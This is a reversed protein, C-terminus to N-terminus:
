ICSWCPSRAGTMGLRGNVFEKVKDQEKRAFTGPLIGGADQVSKIYDFTGVVMPNSLDPQGDKMM